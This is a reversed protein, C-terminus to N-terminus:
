SIIDLAVGLVIPWHCSSKRPWTMLLCPRSLQHHSSTCLLPSRNAVSVSIDPCNTYMARVHAWNLEDSTVSHEPMAYGGLTTLSLV